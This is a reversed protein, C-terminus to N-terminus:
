QKKIKNYENILPTILLLTVITEYTNISILSIQNNALNIVIICTIISFILSTFIYKRSEIVGREQKRLSIAKLKQLIHKIIKYIINVVMNWILIVIFIPTFLITVVYNIPFKFDNLIINDFTKYCLSNV